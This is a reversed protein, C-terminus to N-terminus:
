LFTALTITLFITRMVKFKSIFNASWLVTKHDPAYVIFEKIGRISIIECSRCFLRYNQVIFVGRALRSIHLAPISAQAYEKIHKLNVM